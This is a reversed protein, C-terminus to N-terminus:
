ERPRSEHLLQEILRSAESRTLHQPDPQESLLGPHLPLLRALQEKQSITAPQQRKVNVTIPKPLFADPEVAGYADKLREFVLAAALADAAARHVATTDISFYDRLSVLNKKQEGPLFKRALRLTDIGTHSFPLRENAAAQALFSCDFGLNHGLLPLGGILTFLRPLVASLSEGADAMEQTIGTLATIEEPVPCHPNILASLQACVEGEHMHLAGIELIRDKKVSLGTMELDIAIYDRM